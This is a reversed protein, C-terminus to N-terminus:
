RNMTPVNTGIGLTCVVCIIIMIQEIAKLLKIQNNHNAGSHLM